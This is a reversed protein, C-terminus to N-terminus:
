LEVAKIQQFNSKHKQKSEKNPFDTQIIFSLCKLTPQKKNLIHHKNVSSTERPDSLM